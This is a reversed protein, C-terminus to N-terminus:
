TTGGKRGGPRHGAAIRELVAAAGSERVPAAIEDARALVAAPAGDMAVSWGAVDFMDLDNYNDGIAVTAALPIGCFDALVRLGTGKGTQRDFAEAWYYAGDGLLSRTNVVNVADGLEARVAASLAEIREQRDITGVELARELGLAALDEVVALSGVAARRKALYRALIANVAVPEHHLFGGDDDHGYVMPVTGHVKFLGILRRIREGDLEHSALRRRPADGWVVAGNLLVLPLDDPFWASQELLARTSNLNRGTCLAVVHGADRVAQLAAVERPRLVDDFESDLLTGDVDVAVLLRAAAPNM